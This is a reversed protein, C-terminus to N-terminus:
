HSSQDGIPICGYLDKKQSRVQGGSFNWGWRLANMELSTVAM